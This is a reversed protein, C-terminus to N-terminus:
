ENWWNSITLSQFHSFLLLLSDTFPERRVIINGRSTPVSTQMVGFEAVPSQIKVSSQIVGFEAVPRQM